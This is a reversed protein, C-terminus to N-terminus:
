VIVTLYVVLSYTGRIHLVSLVRLIHYVFYQDYLLDNSFPTQVFMIHTLYDLGTFKYGTKLKSLIGCVM